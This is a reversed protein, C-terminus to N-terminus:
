DSDRRFGYGKGRRPKLGRRTKGAREKWSPARDDDDDGARDAGEAFEASDNFTVPLDEAEEKAARTEELEEHLHQLEEQEHLPDDPALSRKESEVIQRRLKRELSKLERTHTGFERTLQNHQLFGEALDDDTAM